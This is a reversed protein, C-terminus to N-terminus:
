PVAATELLAEDVAMNMAASRQATDHYVSLSAFLKAAMGVLACSDRVIETPGPKFPHFTVNGSAM